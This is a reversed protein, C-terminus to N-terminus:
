NQGQRKVGVRVEDIRTGADETRIRQITQELPVSIAPATQTTPAATAPTAATTQANAFRTLPLLLLLLVAAALVFRPSLLLLSKMPVNYAQCGPRCPM